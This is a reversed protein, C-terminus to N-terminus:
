QNKNRMIATISKICDYLMEVVHGIRIFDSQNRTTPEHSWFLHQEYQILSKLQDRQLM